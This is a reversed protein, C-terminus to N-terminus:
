RAKNRRPKPPDIFNAHQRLHKALMRAQRPSMGIVTVVGDDSGRRDPIFEITPVDYGELDVDTRSAVSAYSEDMLLSILEM